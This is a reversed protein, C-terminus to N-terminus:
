LFGVEHDLVQVAFRPPPGELMVVIWRDGDAEFQERAATATREEAVEVSHAGRAVEVVSEQWRHQSGRPLSARFVVRGDLTLVIVADGDVTQQNSAAIHLKVVTSEM